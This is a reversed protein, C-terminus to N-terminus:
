QRKKEVSRGTAMESILDNVYRLQAWYMETLGVGNLGIQVKNMVLKLVLIIFTCQIYSTIFFTPIPEHTGCVCFCITKTKRYIYVIHM